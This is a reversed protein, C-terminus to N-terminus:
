ILWGSADMLTWPAFRNDSDLSWSCFCIHGRWGNCRVGLGVYRLLRLSLLRHYSQKIFRIFWKRKPAVNWSTWFWTPWTVPIGITGVTMQTPQTPFMATLAMMMMMANLTIHALKLIAPRLNFVPQPFSWTGCFNFGSDVMCFSCEYTMSFYTSSPCTTVPTIMLNLRKISIWGSHDHNHWRRIASCMTLSLIGECRNCCCGPLLSYGLM